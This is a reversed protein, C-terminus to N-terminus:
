QEASHNLAAVRANAYDRAADPLSNLALAHRYAALADTNRQQGDLSLALGLWWSAQNQDIALLQRYRLSADSFLKLQQETAALVAHYDTNSALAPPNDKLLEYARQTQNQALASRALQYREANLDHDSKREQKIIPASTEIKPEEQMAPPTGQLPSPTIKQSSSGEAESREAGGKPGEPARSQLLPRELNAEIAEKKGSSSDQPALQNVEENAAVTTPMSASVSGGHIPERRTTTFSSTLRRNSPESASLQQPTTATLTQSETHEPREVKMERPQDDVANTPTTEKSHQNWSFIVLAILVCLAIASRPAVRNSQSPTPQVNANIPMSAHRRDLDRLMSNIVSM